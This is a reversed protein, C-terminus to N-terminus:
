AGATLRHLWGGPACTYSGYRCEIWRDRIFGLRVGLGDPAMFREVADHASPGYHSRTPHGGLDTDEVVLSSGPVCLPAYLKLEETVHIDSHVSDLIMLCRKGGIYNRVAEVTEIDLCDRKIFAHPHPFDLIDDHPFSLDVGIYPTELKFWGLVDMFFLASGGHNVGTEVIIEPKREWILDFYRRLDFLNKLIPANGWCMSAFFASLVHWADDASGSQRFYNPNIMERLREINKERPIREHPEFM